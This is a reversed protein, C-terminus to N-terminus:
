RRTETPPKKSRPKAAKKAKATPKPERAKAALKEFVGRRM